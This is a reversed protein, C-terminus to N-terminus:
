SKLTNKLMTCLIGLERFRWFRFTGVLMGLGRAFGRLFALWALFFYKMEKKRLVIKFPMPLQIIAFLCFLIASFTKIFPIGIAVLASLLLLISIPPEIIDKIRTYHDGKMMDPHDRYLKMRWCGHRFQEKLYRFLRETHHHVVIADKAFAIKYGANLIRYSLDNDEGSARRYTEDFGGVKELIEKRIAVNYSGFAHVHEPMNRHREMIEEHICGAILSDRNAIDYSGGVAGIEPHTFKETLQGIWARDPICDSDTFCVIDGKTAKWGRNRAAAPGSNEQYVYRVPYKGVVDKTKDTSGDDVVIIEVFDNTHQQELCGEICQIITQASNYSPIVISIIM